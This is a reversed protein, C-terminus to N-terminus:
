IFGKDGLWNLCDIAKRAEITYTVDEPCYEEIALLTERIDLTGEDFASHSDGTGDNNHLHFHTIYPGLVKLWDLVKYEDLTVAHAHGIDLCIRIRQDTIKDMMDKMMYPEDDLVNEVALTFDPAKGEMFEQWFEAGKEAQYSKFYMFPMWGTHVVMKKLGFHEAVDYAQNVRLMGLDRMKHDIAAPIIETFPGHIMVRKAESAKIDREINDLLKQRKDGEEDLLHSICTHNIEMGVGFDKIAERYKECFTAIYLRDKINRM